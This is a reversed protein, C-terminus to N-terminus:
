TPLIRAMAKFLQNGTRIMITKTVFISKAYRSTLLFHLVVIVVLLYHMKAGSFAIVSFTDQYKINSIGGYGGMSLGAIGLDERNRSFYSVNPTLNRFNWVGSLSEM